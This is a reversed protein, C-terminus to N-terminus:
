DVKVVAAGEIRGERLAALADATRELPYIAVETYVPTRAVLELLRTGDDRTLNAVSRISREGWLDAYPFSPIDSMHIGACIVDGGKRVARLARPVLAGIPAFIIAADLPVPAEDGSGGAWCAGLRRAFAQGSTDGDRTFAYVERRQATAIQTLIHAANGFGFFGLRQATGTMSLARFGILGACLLPAAQADDLAHPLPFCFRADAVVYQAYGGARHYGTFQAHDCLNERQARCFECAGCTYGLWPIGVRAGITATAGPGLADVIGVIQHGPVVPYVGDRLDGDVIHLDTRCVGCAHVRVRVEAPGPLPTPLEELSLSGGPRDLVIARM